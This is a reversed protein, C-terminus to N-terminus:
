PLIEELAAMRSHLAPSFLRIEKDPCGNKRAVTEWMSCASLVDRIINSSETSSLGAYIALDRLGLAEDQGAYGVITTVRTFNATPNPNVDFLPSLQWNGNRRLFGWNRMHDDTNGIAVSFAVRKFLQHLQSPADTALTATAEALEAYDRTQGDSSSLLTMASMYPIRKGSLLSNERDFRELLLARENGVRVLKSAPAEIDASAALDLATKEWAMVDWEDDAHSFKALLLRHEDVVSAKPRAGGLSGSGADLLEKIEQRSAEDTVVSRAAHMLRPLQVLPPVPGSESLYSGGPECFRLSGERTQDFVGILYDVDDLDHMPADTSLAEERHARKILHRGWRDPSSDKFIGPLGPCHQAGSMLPFLPDIMYPDSASTLYGEDYSFTTSITGHRLSFRATGVKVDDGSSSDYVDLIPVM